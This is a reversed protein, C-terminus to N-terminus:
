LHKWDRSIKNDQVGYNSLRILKGKDKNVMSPYKSETNKRWKMCGSLITKYLLKIKWHIM